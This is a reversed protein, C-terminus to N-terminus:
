CLRSRADSVAGVHSSLTGALVSSGLAGCCRQQGTGFDAREAFM